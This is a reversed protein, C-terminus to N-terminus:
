KGTALGARYIREDKGRGGSSLGGEGTAATGAGARETEAAMITGGGTLSSPVRLHWGQAAPLACPNNDWHKERGSAPSKM